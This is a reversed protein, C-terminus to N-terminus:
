LSNTSATQMDRGKLPVFPNLGSETTASVGFFYADVAPMNGFPYIIILGIIGLSVIYADADAYRGDSNLKALTCCM